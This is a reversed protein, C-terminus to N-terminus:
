FFSKYKIDNNQFLNDHSVTLYNIKGMNVLNEINSVIIMKIFIIVGIIVGIHVSLSIVYM